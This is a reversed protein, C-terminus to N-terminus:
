SHVTLVRSTFRDLYDSNETLKVSICHITLKRLLALTLYTDLFLKESENSRTEEQELIFRAFLFTIQKEIQM